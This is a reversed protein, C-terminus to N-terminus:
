PRCASPATRVPHRAQFAHLFRSVTDFVPKLPAWSVQGNTVQDVLFRLAGKSLMEGVYHIGTDFEYGGENFTHLCGGAQDHQEFVCVRKGAKTLLAGAVLGGLGSGVIVADLQQPVREPVYGVKLVARRKDDDLEIPQRVRRTDTAFPTAGPGPSFVPLLVFYAATAVAAVAIVAVLLISSLLDLM